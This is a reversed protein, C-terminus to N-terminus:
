CPPADARAKEVQVRARLDKLSTLEINTNKAARAAGSQFGSESLLVGRDAGVDKVVEALM